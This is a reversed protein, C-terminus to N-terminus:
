APGSGVEEDDDDDEDHGDLPVIKETSDGLSKL